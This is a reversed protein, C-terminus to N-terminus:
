TLQAHAPSVQHQIQQFLVKYYQWMYPIILHSAAFGVTRRITWSFWGVSLCVVDAPALIFRVCVCVYIFYILLISHKFTIYLFYLITRIHTATYQPSTVRQLYWKCKCLQSFEHARRFAWVTPLQHLFSYQFYCCTCMNLENKNSHIQFFARRQRGARLRLRLRTITYTCCYIALM